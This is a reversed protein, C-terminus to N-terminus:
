EEVKIQLRKVKIEAVRFKDKPMKGTRIDMYLQQKSKGIKKAYQYVSLWTERPLIKTSM